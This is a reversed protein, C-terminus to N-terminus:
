DLITCKTDRTLVYSKGTQELRGSGVDRQVLETWWDTWGCDVGPSVRLVLVM